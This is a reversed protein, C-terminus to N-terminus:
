RATAASGAFQPPFALRAGFHAVWFGTQRQALLRISARLSRGHGLPCPREPSRPTCDKLRTTPMHIFDIDRLPCRVREAEPSPVLVRESAPDQSVGSDIFVADERRGNWARISERQV